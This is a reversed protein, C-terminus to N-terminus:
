SADTSVNAYHRNLSDATIRPDVAPEHERGTLQRVTRWLEKTDPKSNIKELQRKSRRTIERGIQRLPARLTPPLKNWLHHVCALIHNTIEVRSHVPPQLVNVLTSSRSLQVTILDRLYRPSSSQLFLNYVTDSTEM